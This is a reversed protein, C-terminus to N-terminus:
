KVHATGNYEYLVFDAMSSSHEFKYKYCFIDAAANHQQERTKIKSWAMVVPYACTAIMVCFFM